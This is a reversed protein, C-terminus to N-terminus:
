YAIIRELLVGYDRASNEKTANKQTNTASTDVYWGKGISQRIGTTNMGESDRGLKLSSKSGLRFQAEAAKSEPDYGIYEVPSGSLFYLVSLSMIGQALVQNTQNAAQKDDPNLDQLPRGFLLVSYIDNLPLPPKSSFAYHPAKLPGELDMTIKYEPLLFIVQGLIVPDVPYNFNIRMSPISIPRKFVKTKLPLSKVYGTKLDGNEVNLDFNLRLPQDLLNTSMHLSKEETAELRFSMDMDSKKEEKKRELDKNTKIRSDPTFQPPLSKKSIRPLKLNVRKFDVNALISEPKLTVLNLLVDTGLDMLFVQESSKLDISTIAKITAAENRKTDQTTILVKITGNMSNLPAPLLNFPRPVFRGVAHKVEPVTIQGKTALVTKKKFAVSGLSNKLPLDLYSDIRFLVKELSGTLALPIGSEKMDAHLKVDYLHLPPNFKLKGPVKYKPPATITVERPNAYLNFGLTEATLKQPSKVVTVDFQFSKDKLTVENKLFKFDFDPVLLSWFIKWYGWINPPGEEQVPAPGDKVVINSYDGRIYIPKNTVSKLGQDFTVRFDWSIESLCTNVYAAEHDFEFCLDKFFGKINRENWSIWQHTIDANSWSYTKFIQTKHLVYDINKPNIILTPRFFLIGGLILVLVFLFMLLSLIPTLVYKKM